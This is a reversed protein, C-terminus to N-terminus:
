FYTWVPYYTYNRTTGSVTRTSQYPPPYVWQYYGGATEYATWEWPCCGVCTWEWDAYGWPEGGWGGGYGCNNPDWWGSAVPYRYGGVLEQYPDPYVWYTEEYSYPVDVYTSAGQPDVKFNTANWFGSTKGINQNPDSSIQRIGILGGNERPKNYIGRIGANDANKKGILGGNSKRTM